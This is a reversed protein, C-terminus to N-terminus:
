DVPATEAEAAVEVEKNVEAELAGDKDVLKAAEWDWKVEPTVAAPTAEVAPEMEWKAVQFDGDEDAWKAVEQFDAEAEAVAELVKDVRAWGAVEATALKGEAM